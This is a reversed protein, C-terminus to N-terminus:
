WLLALRGLKDCDVSVAGLGELRKCLASKGSAIGGTLGIVYPKDHLDPKPQLTLFVLFKLYKFCFFIAQEPTIIRLRAAIACTGYVRKLERRKLTSTSHVCNECIHYSM